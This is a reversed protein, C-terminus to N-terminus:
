PEIDEDNIVYDVDHCCVLRNHPHPVIFLAKISNIYPVFMFTIRNHKYRTKQYLINLNPKPCDCKVNM